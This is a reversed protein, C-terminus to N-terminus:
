HQLYSVHPVDPDWCARCDGCEDDQDPAPCKYAGDPVDDDNKRVTSVPLGYGVPGEEDGIMHASLRINLNLPKKVKCDAVIRYERTPIWHRVTPTLAAVEKIVELHRADQLDGSDHWRFVDKTGSRNKANILAAMSVVFADPDRQLADLRRELANKTSPFNYAGKKAYCDECTSGEVKRLKSGIKCEDASTGWAHGPMKSPSALGGVEATLKKISATM